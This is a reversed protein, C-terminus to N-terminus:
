VVKNSSDFLVQYADGNFFAVLFVEKAKTEFKKACKFKPKFVYASCEFKRVHSVGPLRSLLAKYSTQGSRCSKLFPRDRLCSATSVAKVWLYQATSGAANMLTREMDM